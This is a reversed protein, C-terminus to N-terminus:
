SSIAYIPMLFTMFLVYEMPRSHMGLGLIGWRLSSLPLNKSEDHISQDQHRQQKESLYLTPSPMIVHIKEPQYHEVIDHRVNSSSLITITETNEDYNYENRVPHASPAGGAPLTRIYRLLAFTPFYIALISIIFVSIIKRWQPSNMSDGIENQAPKPRHHLSSFSSSRTALLSTAETNRVDGDRNFGFIKM